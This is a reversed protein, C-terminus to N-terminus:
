DKVADNTLRVKSLLLELLEIRRKLLAKYDLSDAHHLGHLSDKLERDLVEILLEREEDSVDKTM